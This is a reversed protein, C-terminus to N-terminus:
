YLDEPPDPQVVNAFHIEAQRTWEEISLVEPVVLVGAHSDNHAFKQRLWELYVNAGVDGEMAKANLTKVVLQASTLRVKKGNETITHFEDAFAQVITKMNKAGKTRGPKGRHSNGFPKGRPADNKGDNEAMM